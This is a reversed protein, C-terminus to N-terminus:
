EELASLRKREEEARSKKAAQRIGSILNTGAIIGMPIFSRYDGSNIEDGRFALPGLIAGIATTLGPIMGAVYTFKEHDPNNFNAPIAFLSEMYGAGIEKIAKLYHNTPKDALGFDIDEQRNTDYEDTM